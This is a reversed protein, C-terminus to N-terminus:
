QCKYKIYLSIGSLVLAIVSIWLAFRNYFYKSNYDRIILSRLQLSNEYEEVFTNTHTKLIGKFTLSYDNGNIVVLGENILYNLAELQPDSSNTFYIAVMKSLETDEKDKFVDLYTAINNGNNYIRSLIKDLQSLHNKHKENITSM